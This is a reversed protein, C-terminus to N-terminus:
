ALVPALAAGLKGLVADAIADPTGGAQAAAVVADRVLPGVSAALGAAIAAEDVDVGQAAAANRANRYTAQLAVGVTPGSLGLLQGLLKDTTAKAVKAVDADSLPMNDEIRQLERRAWVVGEQWNRLNAPRTTDRDPLNSRLANRDDLWSAVQRQASPDLHPCGTMVEHIHIVFGDAELRLYAASGMEELLTDLKGYLTLLQARTLGYAAIVWDHVGGGMHTPGSNESFPRYAGQACWPLRIGLAKCMAELFPQRAKACTCSVYTGHGSGREYTITVGAM